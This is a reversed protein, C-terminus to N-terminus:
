ESYFFAIPRYKEIYKTFKTPQNTPQINFAREICNLDYRM